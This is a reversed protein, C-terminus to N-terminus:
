VQRRNGAVAAPELDFPDGLASEASNRTIAEQLNITCGLENFAARLRSELLHYPL